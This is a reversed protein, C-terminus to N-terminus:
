KFINQEHDTQEIQNLKNIIKDFSPLEKKNTLGLYQLLQVSEQYFIQNQQNIKQILGRIALNRLIYSSNIGRIQDLENKSIPGKYLIISLTELSSPSLEGFEEEKKLKSITDSYEKKTTMLFHQGNEVITLSSNTKLRKKIEEIANLIEERKKQTIKKLVPISVEEGKFFLIAEIKKELDDDSM